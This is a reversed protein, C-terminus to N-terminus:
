GSRMTGVDRASHLAAVLATLCQLVIALRFYLAHTAPEGLILRELRAAVFISFVYCMFSWLAAGGLDRRRALWRGLFMGTPTAVVVWALARLSQDVPLRASVDFAFLASLAALLPPVIALLFLRIRFM